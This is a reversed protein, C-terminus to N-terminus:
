RDSMSGYVQMYNYLMPVAIIATLTAVTSVAIGFFALRRPYPLSVFTDLVSKTNIKFKECSMLFWQFVDVKIFILLSHFMDPTFIQFSLLYRRLSDARAVAEKPDQDYGTM